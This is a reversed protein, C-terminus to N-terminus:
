PRDDVSKGIQLVERGLLGAEDDRGLAGRALAEVGLGLPPELVDERPLLLAQHVAGPRELFQSTKLLSERPAREDRADHRGDGVM